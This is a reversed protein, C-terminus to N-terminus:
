AINPRRDSWPAAQEFAASARLVLGDDAFRGVLQLGVPMGDVFGCPLSAAPQGTMNFIYTFPYFGYLGEFKRGGAHTPPSAPEFGTVSTTPSAILDYREMIATM